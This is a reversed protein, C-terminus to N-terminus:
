HWGVGMRLGAQTVETTGVAVYPGIMVNVRSLLIRVDIGATLRGDFEARHFARQAAAGSGEGTASVWVWGGAAGFWFDVPSSPLAHLELRLNAAHSTIDLLGTGDSSQYSGWYALGLHCAPDPAWMAMVGFPAGGFLTNAATGYIM